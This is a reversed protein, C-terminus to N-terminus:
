RMLVGNEAKVDRTGHQSLTGRPQRRAPRRHEIVRDFLGQFQAERYHPLDAKDITLTQGLVRGTATTLTVTIEM